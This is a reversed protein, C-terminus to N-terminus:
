VLGQARRIAEAEAAAAAEDAPNVPPSMLWEIMADVSQGYQAEFDQERKMAAEFKPGAVDMWIMLSERLAETGFGIVAPSPPQGAIAAKQIHLTLMTVIMPPGLLAAVAKGKQQARAVVQLVPDLATGKVSDDLLMGAVPAQVKLTRQLPPVPAAVRALIRWAGGIIEDTSVRPVKAKPKAKRDRAFGLRAGWGRAPAAPARPRRPKREATEAPGEAPPVDPMTVDAALDGNGNPHAAEYAALVEDPLAGKINVELGEQDRAWARIQAPTAAM